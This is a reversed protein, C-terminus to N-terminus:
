LPLYNIKFYNYDIIIYIKCYYNFWSGLHSVDMTSLTEMIIQDMFIVYVWYRKLMNLKKTCRSMNNWRRPNIHYEM